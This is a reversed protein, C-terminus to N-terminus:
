PDRKVNKNRVGKVPRDEIASDVRDTLVDLKDKVENVAQETREQRADMADLTRKGFFGIVALLLVVIKLWLGNARSQKPDSM